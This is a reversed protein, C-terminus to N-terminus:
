VYFYKRESRTHEVQLLKIIKSKRLSKLAFLENSVKDQVLVVKGFAGRGLVKL